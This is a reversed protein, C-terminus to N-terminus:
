RTVENRLIEEIHESVDGQGSRGAAAARLRRVPPGSVLENAEELRAALEAPVIAALRQGGETLYVIRGAAAQHAVESLHDQAEPVPMESM